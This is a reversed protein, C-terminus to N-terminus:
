KNMFIDSTLNDYDTKIKSENTKEVNMKNKLTTMENTFQEKMQELDHGLEKFKGVVRDDEINNILAIKTEINNFDKSMKEKINPNNIDEIYEKIITLQGSEMIKKAEEKLIKMKGENESQLYKKRQKKLLEKVQNDWDSM